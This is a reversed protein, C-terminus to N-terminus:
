IRADTDGWPGPGPPDDPGPGEGGEPGNEPEGGQKPCPNRYEEIAQALPVLILVIILVGAVIPVLFVPFTGALDVSKLPNNNVYDYLNLGGSEQIPDRNLWRKLGSDYARFEAFYLGSRQHYFLGTYAFDPQITGTLETLEGYAGYDLQTQITGTSDTFNRISGLHDKGYYYVTTGDLFGQDFYEKNVAGTSGRQQVMTKGIWVYRQDSQISGNVTEVVETLRGFGDYSLSTSNGTSYSVQILRNAGDWTYTRAGTVTDPNTSPAGVGNQPNGNADYSITAAGSKGFTISTVQNLSNVQYLANAFASLSSSSTFRTLNAGHDYSWVSKGLALGSSSNSSKGTLNQVENDQDYKFAWKATGDAPNAQTWELINGVADYTYSDSVTGGSTKQQIEQLRFDGTAGYYQYNISQGPEALAQLLNSSGTFQYTFAGLTNTQSTVRGIADYNLSRTDTGDISEQVIRGLQDYQYTATGYGSPKAESMPKLAGLGGAPFYSYNTTGIGDTMSTPRGYADYTWSVGPTPIAYTVQALLNDVGYQYRTTQGKADTMSSLRGGLDYKSSVVSNDAYIKNTVRDEIDRVFTTTNGNGDTLDTLAGCACYSYQTTRKEPDTVEILQQLSNYKYRTVKGLRDKAEVLSLAQYTYTNTTHDPYLIETIRDLNDYSYTTTFGNVDTYTRVRGFGDYTYNAKTNGLADTVKQLYGNSDYTYTATESKPDTTSTVEGFANYTITTTQGAADTIQTPLHQSNYVATQVTDYSSGNYHQVEVVDIQNTAYTYKTTRGAPDVASTVNAIANYACQTLQTTGTNDLVRGVLSPKGITVGDLIYGVSQGPYNNWVRSELPRGTSEVLRSTAGDIDHAFHYVTAQTYDYPSVAMAHQDWYFTDRYSLYGNFLNMGSPVVSDHDPYSVGQNYEVRQHGGSPDFIDVSRGTGAAGFNQGFLFTTQGYPTTLVHLLGIQYQFSSTLGIEDTISTLTYQRNLLTYSLKATRGFPDTVQTIKYADAKLDYSLTTVQGIADKVSVLRFMSDYSFSLTNGQPDIVQTLFVQRGSGTVNNPQGYVEISGDSLLRAYSNASTKELTSNSVIEFDYVGTGATVVSFGTFNFYGGGRPFLTVDGNPTAPDDVVYAMWDHFWNQGVNGFGFTAPQGDARQHYRLTFLSAPGVPPQYGVPTDFVTLSVSQIKVDYRAM